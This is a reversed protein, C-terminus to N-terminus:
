LVAVDHTPHLVMIRNFFKCLGLHNKLAYRSENSLYVAVDHPKDDKSDKKDDKCLSQTIPVTIALSSVARIVWHSTSKLNWKM